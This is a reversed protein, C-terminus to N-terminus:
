GCATIEEAMAMSSQRASLPGSSTKGARVPAVYLMQADAIAQRHWGARHILRFGHRYERWSTRHREEMTTKDVGGLGIVGFLRPSHQNEAVKGFCASIPKSM